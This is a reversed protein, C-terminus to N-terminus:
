IIDNSSCIKGGNGLVNKKKEMFFVQFVFERLCWFCSYTPHNPQLGSCCLPNRSGKQEDSGGKGGFCVCLEAHSEPKLSWNQLKKRRTSPLFQFAFNYGGFCDYQKPLRPLLPVPILKEKKERSLLPPSSHAVIGM